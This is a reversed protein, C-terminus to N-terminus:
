LGIERVIEKIQERLKPHANLRETWAGFNIAREVAIMDDKSSSKVMALFTASHFLLWPSVKRQQVLVSIKRAGLRNVIESYPINEKDALDMLFQISSITQEIPDEREDMYKLYLTYSENRCWLDPTIGGEVMQEIYKEPKNIGAAIVMQSFKIFAKFYRSAAYADISQSKFKRLRMWDCYFHYAAQGTPSTLEEARTKEKCHHREFMMENGFRKNCYHCQWHGKKASVNINADEISIRRSAVAEDDIM